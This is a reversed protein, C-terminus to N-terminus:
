CSRCHRRWTVLASGVVFLLPASLTVAVTQASAGNRWGQLGAFAEAAALLSVWRSLPLARTCCATAVLCAILAAASKLALHAGFMAQPHPHVVLVSAVIAVVLGGTAAHERQM